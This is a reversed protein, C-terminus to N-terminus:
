DSTRYKRAAKVLAAFLREHLTGGLNEPHWQVGVWFPLSEDEVGEVLGDPARASAVLGQGVRDIGQHHRSNVALREVGLIEALRTGSRIEVDHANVRDGPKSHVLMGGGGGDRGKIDPLHQHLTGQRLVNMAQCGLCIGLTPLARAEALALLALEFDQQDADVLRTCAHKEQGFLRPDIDNGGPILLGDLSQIMEQRLAADPTCPLLVALGGAAHVRDAYDKPLEILKREGPRPQSQTVETPIGICPRRDTLKSPLQSM